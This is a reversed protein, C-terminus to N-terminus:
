GPLPPGGPPPQQARRAEARLAPVTRRRWRCRISAHVGARQPMHTHQHHGHGLGNAWPGNSVRTWLPKAPQMCLFPLLAAVHAEARRCRTALSPCAASHLTIPSSAPTQTHPAPAPSPTHAYICCHMSLLLFDLNVHYYSKPFRKVKALFVTCLLCETAEKLLPSARQNIFMAKPHRPCVRLYSKPHLCKNIQFAIGPFTPVLSPLFTWLHCASPHSVEM